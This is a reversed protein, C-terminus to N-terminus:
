VRQHVSIFIEAPAMEARRALSRTATQLTIILKELSYNTNQSRTTYVLITGRVDDISHLNHMIM